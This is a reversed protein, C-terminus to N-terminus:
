LDPNSALTKALLVRLKFGGSLTSLPQEHVATPIYLGELVEGALAELAYGDHALVIDELEAYRDADFFDAAKALVKEKEVMADWLVRNGMMVVDLIRENEYRFHDQELVGIRAKKPISVTGGSAEEEGALIRLITSKGSGNAGVVGYRRGANFQISADRFLTRSGHSKTLNNLTIM